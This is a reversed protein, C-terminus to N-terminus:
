NKEENLPLVFDAIESLWLVKHYKDLTRVVKTKLQSLRSFYELLRSVKANEFDRKAM